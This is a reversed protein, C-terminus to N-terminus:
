KLNIHQELIEIALTLATYYHRDDIYDQRLEKLAEITREIDM